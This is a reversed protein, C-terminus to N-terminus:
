ELMEKKRGVEKLKSQAIMYLVGKKVKDKKTKKILLYM